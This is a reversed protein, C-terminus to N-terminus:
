LDTAGDIQERLIDAHGAHRGTEEIMHAVIMRLSARREQGPNPIQALTSLDSCGHVIDDSRACANRYAAVVDDRTLNGPVRMSVSSYWPQGDALRHDSPEEGLFVCQFWHEEAWTLHQVLGLLNTGSPVGAIRQQDDYLGESARVVADRVKNLFRLLQDHESGVWSGADGGM